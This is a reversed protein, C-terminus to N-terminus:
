QHQTPALMGQTSSIQAISQSEYVIQTRKGPRLECVVSTYCIKNLRNKAIDEFLIVYFIDTVEVRKVLGNKGTSVGQCLRGMKKLFYKYWTEQFKPQKRLQGYNMQKGTDNDLVPCSAHMLM